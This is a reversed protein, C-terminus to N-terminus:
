ANDPGSRQAALEKLSATMGAVDSTEEVGNDTLMQTAGEGPEFAADKAQPAPPITAADGDTEGLSAATVAAAPVAALPVPDPAALLEPEFDDMPASVARRFVMMNRWETTTSTLGSREISPLTEARQFEWGEAGMENMLTELAFAFRGEAGKVGKGKRGKTPAPVVKYEWGAM